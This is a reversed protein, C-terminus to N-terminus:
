TSSDSQRSAEEEDKRRVRVIKQEQFLIRVRWWLVWNILVYIFARLFIFFDFRPFILHVVGLAFAATAVEMFRILHNGRKSSRWDAWHEYAIVFILCALFATVVLFDGVFDAADRM